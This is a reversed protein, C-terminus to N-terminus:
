AWCIDEECQPKGQSGQRHLRGRDTEIRERQTSAENALVESLTFILFTMESNM